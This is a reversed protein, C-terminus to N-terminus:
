QDGDTSQNHHNFFRQIDLGRDHHEHTDFDPRFFNWNSHRPTTDQWQYPTQSSPQQTQTSEVPTTNTSHSVPATTSASARHHAQPQPATVAKTTVAQTATAAAPTTAAIVTSANPTAVATSTTPGSFAIALAAAAVATAGAGAAVFAMPRGLRSWRGTPASEAVPEAAEASWAYKPETTTPSPQWAMTPAQSWSETQSRDHYDLM